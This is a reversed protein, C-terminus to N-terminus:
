AQKQVKKSTRIVIKVRQTPKSTKFFNPFNHSKVAHKAHTPMKKVAHENHRSLYKGIGLM